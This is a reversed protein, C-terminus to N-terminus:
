DGAIVQSYTTRKLNCHSSGWRLSCKTRCMAPSATATPAVCPTRLAEDDLIGPPAVPVVHAKPGGLRVFRAGVETLLHGMDALRTVSARPTVAAASVTAATETWAVGTPVAALGSFILNMLRAVGTLVTTSTPGAPDLGPSM